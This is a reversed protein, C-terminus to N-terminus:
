GCVIHYTHWYKTFHKVQMYVAEGQGLSLEKLLYTNQQRQRSDPSDPMFGMSTRRVNQRTSAIIGNLECLGDTFINGIAMRLPHDNVDEDQDNNTVLYINVLGADKEEMESVTVLKAGPLRQFRGHGLKEFWTGIIGHSIRECDLLAVVRNSGFSLCPLSIRLENNTVEHIRAEDSIRSAVACVQASHEFYAPSPALIVTVSWEVVSPAWAFITHNNTQRIIELQLRYLARKGEAYLMPMNIQVFGLLCYALDEARTTQRVAAWSFKTAISADKITERNLLFKTEIRTAKRVHTALKSKTGLLVWYEHLIGCRHAGVARTIDMRKQVLSVKHLTEAAGHKTGM